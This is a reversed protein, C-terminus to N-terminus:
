MEVTIGFIALRNSSSRLTAITNADTEFTYAYAVKNDKNGTVTTVQVGNVMLEGGKTQDKSGFNGDTITFYVTVIANQKTTLEFVKTDSMGGTTVAAKTFTLGSEDNATATSKDAQYQVKIGKNVLSVDSTASGILYSGAAVDTNLTTENEFNYSTSEFEKVTLTMTVPTANGCTLKAYVTGAAAFATAADAIETTCAADSYLKCVIRDTLNVKTDDTYTGEATAHNNFATTGIKVNLTEPATIVTSDITNYVVTYTSSVTTNETSTVRVTYNGSTTFETVVDSGKLLEVIYETSQLTSEVDGRTATVVIGEATFEDGDYFTTKASTTDIQIASIPVSLDTVSINYSQTKGDYTVSVTYDGAATINGTVTQNSANKVVITCDSLQVNRNIGYNDQAIVLLGNPEDANFVDSDTNFEVQTYELFLDDTAVRSTADVSGNFIMAYINSGNTSSTITYTKGAEVEFTFAHVENKNDATPALSKYTSTGDTAELYRTADTQFLLTVTGSAKAAISMKKAGTNVQFRGNYTVGNYTKTVPNGNSDTIQVKVGTGMTIDFSKSEYIKTDAGFSTEGTTVPNDLSANYDDCSLPISFKYQASKVNITFSKPEDDSTHVYIYVTYTGAIVGDSISATNNNPDKIVVNYQNSNLSVTIFDMDLATVTLGTLDITDGVELVTNVNAYEITFDMYEETLNNYREWKAYITTAANITETDFDFVTQLAADKYWGVFEYTYDADAAKSPDTAPKTVKGGEAIQQSSVASGGNTDFTVTYKTVAIPTADWKAYITTAANITETDFDFATQLGSDKYWGAFDYSYNADDAKTPDTAPRTAKSGEAVQQATVASGGNTDFTVTYKTIPTATWKAYITTAASITETDFDFATQLAADKYWGAFQYTNDSDAAKTPDTAPRTAKGGEAVQQATVASGGNTDFTVSYKTLPTATWKAYISTASTITETDFNFATTFAANKYWGAFTYSNNADNAKTPDTAPRTVKGGSKISQSAVTSGGNTVFTVTFSPIPTATWKAYLTTNGSITDTNFNFVQSLATDKYWGAFTYTNDADAAKTPATPQTAKEGEKVTQNDVATGGNSNFSVTYEAKVIEKQADTDDTKDSGDCSAMGIAATALLVGLLLKRKKM